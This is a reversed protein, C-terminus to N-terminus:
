RRGPPRKGRERDHHDKLDACRRCLSQLNTSVDTGGFARALIHDVTVAKAGCNQCYPNRELKRKRITPWGSGM